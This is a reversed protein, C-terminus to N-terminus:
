DTSSRVKLGYTGPELGPRGVLESDSLFAAAGLATMGGATALEHGTRAAVDDMDSEALHAYIQTVLISSHGLHEMVQELTWRRECTSALLKETAADFDRDLLDGRELAVRRSTM